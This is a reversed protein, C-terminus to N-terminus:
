NQHAVAANQSCVAINSMLRTPIAILLLSPVNMQKSQPGDKPRTARNNDLIVKYDWFRDVGVAFKCM